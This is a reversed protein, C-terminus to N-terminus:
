ACEADGRGGPERFYGLAEAAGEGQALARVADGLVSVMAPTLVSVHLRGADPDEQSEELVLRVESWEGGCDACAGDLDESRVGDVCAECAPRYARVSSCLGASVARASKAMAEAPSGVLAAMEKLRRAQEETDAEGFDAGLSSAALILDGGARLSDEQGIRRLRWFISVGDAETEVVRFSARRLRHLASGSM